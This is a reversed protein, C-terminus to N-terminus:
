IHQALTIKYVGPLQKLEDYLDNLPANDPIYCLFSARSIGKDTIQELDTSKIEIRFRSIISEMPRVDASGTRSFIRLVKLYQKPFIKREFFNLVVLTIFVLVAAIMAPVYLGGGIALGIAAVTWLSAATTLGRVNAGLRLIAGAGLFGIGSVVQAAIRGPDGADPDFYAKPIHISLMALLAAGMTILMHTRLGAQQKHSEREVGVVGGVFFALLLRLLAVGLTIDTEALLEGLWEM